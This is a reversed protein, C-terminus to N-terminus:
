DLKKIKINRYWCAGGHDQLGIYGERPFDKLPKKFKNPSGDPNKQAETWQDLDMDIIQQDNIAVQLTNKNATIVIRNWEGAPKEASKSPALLDYAAGCSHTGPKQGASDFVQIEM